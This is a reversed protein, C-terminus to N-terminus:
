AHVCQQREMSVNVRPNPNCRIEPEDKWLERFGSKMRGGGVYLALVGVVPWIALSHLRRDDSNSAADARVSVAYTNEM